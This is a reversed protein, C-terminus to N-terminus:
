RTVEKPDFLSLWRRILVMLLPLLLAWILALLAGSTWLGLPLWVGGLRAGVLYAFPGGVAGLLAVRAPHWHVLWGLGHPLTWVFGVWLGLLWLPWATFALVGWQWLLLDLGFGAAALPLLALDGRRSPTFWLHLALLLLLPWPERVVVALSWYLDFGIFQGWRWGSDRNISLAM